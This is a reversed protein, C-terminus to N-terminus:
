QLIQHAQVSRRTKVDLFGDRTNMKESTEEIERKQIEERSV